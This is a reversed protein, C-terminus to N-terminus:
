YVRLSMEIRRNQARGEATRNSTLPVDSGFGQTDIQGAPVGAEILHDQMAKSQQETLDRMLLRDDSDDTHCELSINLDPYAKLITALQDLEQSLSDTLETSGKEFDHRFTYLERSYNEKSSTLLNYLKDAVSGPEFPVDSLEQRAQLLAPSEPEAPKPVVLEMPEEEELSRRMPEDQRTSFLADMVWYALIATILFALIATLIRQQQENM